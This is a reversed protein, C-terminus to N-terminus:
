KGATSALFDRVLGLFVALRDHHVWHGAGEVNEFRANKFASLRGDISPDGAWSKTGRLLLTPCEVRSWLMRVEDADWRYPSLARVYNDFKWSYTGDENRLAGHVTLHEAQAETLFANEERMRAAAAALDPYRRPQRGALKRMEGIWNQIRQWPAVDRFRALLEPSPGLGEIAVVRSVREPYLATYMLSVAGGLSHGIITMPFLQVAELLQAVDLVFDAMAYMGGVAWASDGHGRLDPAIVHHDRRLDEAVWDWTHAHDRGGHVLLVPPAGENGWDLYHLRLRQSVFFRSTPM